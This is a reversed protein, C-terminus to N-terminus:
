MRVWPLTERRRGRGPRAARPGRRGCCRARSGRRWRLTRAQQGGGGGAAELSVVGAQVDGGVGLTEGTSVVNDFSEGRGELCARSLRVKDHALVTNGGCVEAMCRAGGGAQSAMQIAIAVVHLACQNHRM